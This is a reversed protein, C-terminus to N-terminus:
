EKRQTISRGNDFVFSFDFNEGYALMFKFCFYRNVSKFSFQGIEKEGPKPWQILPIGRGVSFDDVMIGKCKKFVEKLEIKSWAAVIIQRRYPKRAGEEMESEEEEGDEGASSDEDGVEGKEARLSLWEVDVVCVLQTVPPIAVEGPVFGSVM